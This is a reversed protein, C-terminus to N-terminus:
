TTCYIRPIQERSSASVSTLTGIPLTRILFRTPHGSISYVTQQLTLEPQIKQSNMRRSSSHRSVVDNHTRIMRAYQQVYIGPVDLLETRNRGAFAVTPHNPTRSPYIPRPEYQQLRAVVAGHPAVAVHRNFPSSSSSM